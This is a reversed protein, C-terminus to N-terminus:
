RGDAKRQLAKALQNGTRATEGGGSWYTTGLFWTSKRQVMITKGNVIVKGTGHAGDLEQFRAM